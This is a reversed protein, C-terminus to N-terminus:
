IFNIDQIQKEIDLIKNIEHLKCCHQCTNIVKINNEIMQKRKTGYWIQKFTEQKINGFTYEPMNFHYACVSLDGNYWLFPVVRHGQCINYNHPKLYDNWKYQTLEIRFDKTEYKKIWDPFPIVEQLDYRDALAPRIQFYAIGYDIAQKILQELMHINQNSVNFNIGVKTVKCYEQVIQPINYKETISIRIWQFLEPHKLSKYGNTFIGQQINKECVLKSIQGMHSYISPEGGGTWTIAKIDLEAIDNIFNSLYEFELEEKTHRPKYTGSSYFCWPCKANCINTPSIEIQIPLCNIDQMYCNALHYIIKEQPVLESM